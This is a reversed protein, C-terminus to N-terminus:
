YRSVRFSSNNKRTPNPNTAPLFERREPKSSGIVSNGTETFGTGTEALGKFGSERGKGVRLLEGQKSLDKSDNYKKRLRRLRFSDILMLIFWFFALAVLVSGFIILFLGM